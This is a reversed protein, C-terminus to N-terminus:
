GAVRTPGLAVDPSTSHLPVKALQLMARLVTCRCISGSCGRGFYPTVWRPGGFFRAIDHACLTPGTCFTWSDAVCRCSAIAGRDFLSQLAGNQHPGIHRQVTSRVINRNALTGNCQVAASPTPPWLRTASYKSRHHPRGIHRQVTSRAINRSALTGRCQVEPSPAPPWLGTAGYKPSTAAPWHETASYM